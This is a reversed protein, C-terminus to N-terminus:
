LLVLYTAVFVSRIKDKSVHKLMPIPVYKLSTLKLDVKM